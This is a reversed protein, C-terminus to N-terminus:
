CGCAGWVPLATKGDKTKTELTGHFKTVECSEDDTPCLWEIKGNFLLGVGADRMKFLAKDGVHEGDYQQELVRLTHLKNNIRIKAKEGFEWELIPNGKEKLSAPYFFSCGCGEARDTAALSNITITYLQQKTDASKALAPLLLLAAIFAKRM